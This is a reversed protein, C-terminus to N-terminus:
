SLAYVTTQLCWEDEVNAQREIDLAVSDTFGLNFVCDGSMRTSMAAQEAIIDYVSAM